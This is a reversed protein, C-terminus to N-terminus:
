VIKFVQVGQNYEKWSPSIDTTTAHPHVYKRYASSFQPYLMGKEFKIIKQEPQKSSYGIKVPFPIEILKQEEPLQMLSTTITRPRAYLGRYRETKGIKRLDVRRRQKEEYNWMREAEDLTHGRSILHSIFKEEARERSYGKPRYYGAEHLLQQYM